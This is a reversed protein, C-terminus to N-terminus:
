NSLLFSALMEVEDQYGLQQPHITDTSMYGSGNAAVWDGWRNRINLLPVGTALAAATVDGAVLAQSAASTYSVATPTPLLVAVDAYVQMSQITTVMDSYTSTTGLKANNLGLQLLILDPTYLPLVKLVDYPQTNAAWDTTKGGSFGMNYIQVAKQTSLYTDIGIILVSGLVTRIINVVGSAAAKSVTTKQVGSTGAACTALVGAGCDITFTGVSPSRYWYVDVSDFSDSPTLTFTEAAAAGLSGAINTIMVGGPAPLTGATYNAGSVVRPDYSPITGGHGLTGNDSTVSGLNAVLRSDMAHLAAGLLTPYSIAKNGVWDTSGNSRVGATTSDGCCAIRMNALGARVNALAKRVKRMQYPFMPTSSLLFMGRQDVPLGTSADLYVSSGRAPASSGPPVWVFGGTLTATAQGAAIMAAETVADTSYLTGAPQVGWQSLLKITM